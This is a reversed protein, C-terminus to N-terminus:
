VDEAQSAAMVRPALQPAPADLLEEAPQGDTQQVVEPEIVRMSRWKGGMFRAFYTVGLTCAWCTLLTWAGYVNMSFMETAIWMACVATSSTVLTVRMVFQTDGAGKIASSFSFNTADFFCYVAVFRLLVIALASVEEFQEPEAYQRHLWLLFEPAFVFLSALVALYSVILAYGSWTARAALDPRDEGLRQGVLTTIAQGMGFMPFLALTELSFALNSAALELEGLRGLLMILVTIGSCEVLFQVGSPSGFWLLRRMLAGDWRIGSWTGYRVRHEAKLILAVYVVVKLWQAATTGWAAGAIGMEPFGWRGFIWAYDLLANLVAAVINVWMVTWVDGRGIFFSSTAAAIVLAGQGYCLGEYYAVEGRQVEPAHGIFEFLPQALPLTLLLVPISFLGVWVGQWMAVGIRDFRKAGYYQSVFTNTYFAVGLFFCVTVFSVMAAPLSAALESNSHWLLFMRDVFHMVTWSSASIMLPLAIWFVERVGCPRIWLHHMRQWM